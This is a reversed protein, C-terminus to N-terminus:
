NQTCNNRYSSDTHYVTISYHIYKINKYNFYKKGDLASCGRDPFTQDIMKPCSEALFSPQSIKEIYLNKYPLYQYLIYIQTHRNQSLSTVTLQPTNSFNTSLFFFGCSSRPLRSGAAMCNVSLRKCFDLYINHQEPTLVIHM